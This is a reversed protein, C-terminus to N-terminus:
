QCSCHVSLPTLQECQRAGRGTGPRRKGRLYGDIQSQIITIRDVSTRLLDARIAHAELHLLQPICQQSHSVFRLAHTVLSSIRLSHRNNHPKALAKAVGGCSPALRAPGKMASYIVCPSTPPWLRPCSPCVAVSGERWLALGSGLWGTL